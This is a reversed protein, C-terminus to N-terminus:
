EVIWVPNGRQGTVTRSRAGSENRHLQIAIANAPFRERLHRRVAMELNGAEKSDVRIVVAGLAFFTRTSTRSHLTGQYLRPIELEHKLSEEVARM